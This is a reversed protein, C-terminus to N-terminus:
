RKTNGKLVVLVDLLVNHVLMFGFLRPFTILTVISMGQLFSQLFMYAIAMRFFAVQFDTM